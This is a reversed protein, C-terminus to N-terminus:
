LDKILQERINNNIALHTLVCNSCAKSLKRNIINKRFQNFADGQWIENFSKNKINEKLPSTSCPWVDGNAEIKPWLWPEFCAADLFTGKHSEEKKEGKNIEGDLKGTKEIVKISELQNVNTRINNREATEIIKPVIKDLFEKREEINMQLSKSFDNNICIPEFNVAAIGLEAALEIMKATEKYNRNCLVYNVELEPREKGLEAKINKFLKVNEVIKKFCKGGRLFDHTEETAGDISFTLSEWGLRIMQEVSDKDWLTGNHIMRGRVGNEKLITIMKMFLEKRALPEGGGSILVKKVGMDCIDKVVSLWVSDDIEDERRYEGRKQACFQCDLNCINTPYIQVEDPPATKGKAWLNLKKIIEQM